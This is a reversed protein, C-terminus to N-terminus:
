PDGEITLRGRATSEGVEVDGLEARLGASRV